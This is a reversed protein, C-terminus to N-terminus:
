GGKWFMGSDRIASFEDAQQLACSRRAATRPRGWGGECVCRLSAHVVSSRASGTPSNGEGTREQQANEGQPGDGRRCGGDMGGGGITRLADDDQQAVLVRVQGGGRDAGRRNPRRPGGPCRRCPWM